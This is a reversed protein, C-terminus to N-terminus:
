GASIAAVGALIAVIGVEQARTVREHLITRALVVTMAPYLSGLVAVVSLLGHQTALAYLGNALVDLAGIALLPAVGRLFTTGGVGGPRLVLAGVLLLAAQVVRTLLVTWTVGALETARDIGAFWTGFGLAALIALGLAARGRQAAERSEERSALVIGAFALAIGALQVAGPHEGRALGVLVPVAAGTASVPAVISMTGIALGRYFALLATIGAAGSGAAWGFAALTPTGDSVALVLAIALVVAAFQGWLLVVLVPLRRAQLGGFFDACGWVVSCGLALVVGLV